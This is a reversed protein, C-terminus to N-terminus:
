IVQVEKTKYKLGWVDLFEEFYSSRDLPIMVAGSGLKEGKVEELNMKLARNFLVKRVHVLHKTDYLYIKRPSIKFLDKIFAKSRVSYGELFLQFGLRTSLLSVTSLLEIDVACESLTKEVENVLAVDKGIIAIDVDSPSAKGKALSGFIIIDECRPLLSELRKALM